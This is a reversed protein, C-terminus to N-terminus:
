RLHHSKLIIWHYAYDSHTWALFQHAGLGCSAENTPSWGQQGSFRCWSTLNTAQWGNGWIGWHRISLFVYQTLFGYKHTHRFILYVGPFISKESFIILLWQSSSTVQQWVAHVERVSTVKGPVKGACSPVVVPGTNYIAIIDVRSQYVGPQKLNHGNLSYGVWNSLVHEKNIILGPNVNSTIPYSSLVGLWRVLFHYLM